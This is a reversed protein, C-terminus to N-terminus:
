SGPGCRAGVSATTGCTPTPPRRGRATTAHRHRRPLRQPQHREPKRRRPQRRRPEHGRQRHHRCKHRRHGRERDYRNGEHPATTRTGATPVAPSTSPHECTPAQPRLAPPCPSKRGVSGSHDLQDAATPASTAGPTTASTAATPTSSSRSRASRGASPRRSPSPRAHGAAGAGGRVAETDVVPREAHLTVEHEEESIAPGDYAAGRTAETIPERELTIEEHSVPVTVQQHETVVHKRLRAKGAVQTQTGVRLQEESRTM